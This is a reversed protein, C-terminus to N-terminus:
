NEGQRFPIVLGKRVKRGLARGHEDTTPALQAARVAVPDKWYHKGAKPGADGVVDFHNANIHVIIQPETYRLNRCTWCMTSYWIEEAPVAMEPIPQNGRISGQITGPHRWWASHWAGEFSRAAEGKPQRTLTVAISMGVLSVASSLICAWWQMQQVLQAQVIQQRDNLLIQQDVILQAYVQSVTANLVTENVPPVIWFWGSAALLGQYQVQVQYEATPLPGTAITVNISAQRGPTANPLTFDGTFVPSTGNWPPATVTVLIRAHAPGLVTIEAPAGSPIKTAPFDVEWTTAPPTAATLAAMSVPYVLLGVVAILSLLAPRV